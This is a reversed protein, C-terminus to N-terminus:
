KRSVETCETEEWIERVGIWRRHVKFYIQCRNENKQM